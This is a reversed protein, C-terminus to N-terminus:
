AFAIFTLLARKVVSLWTHDRSHDQVNLRDLPVTIDVVPVAELQDIM